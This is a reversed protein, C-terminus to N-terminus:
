RRRPSENLRADVVFNRARSRGGLRKAIARALSAVTDHNQFEALLMPEHDVESLPGPSGTAERVRRNQRRQM